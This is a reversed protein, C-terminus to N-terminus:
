RLVDAMHSAREDDPNLELARKYYDKAEDLQGRMLAVDGLGILAKASSPYTQTYQEFTWQAYDFEHESLIRYGLETYYHEPVAVDMGVRESLEDYHREVISIDNDTLLIVPVQWGEYVWELADYLSRYAISVHDEADYSAYHWRLGEPSQQELVEAFASVGALTNGGENGVSLHFAKPVPSGKTYSEVARKVQQQNNRGLSPSIAIFADFADPKDLMAYVAFLGGLSHGALVRHPKTRYKTDLEPVLEEAIFRLFTQAGGGDAAEGPGSPALDAFRAFRGNRLTNTVGVVIMPPMRQSAALHETIAVANRFSWEGDLVILVPYSAEEGNYGDPLHVFVDREEQLLSSKVRVLEGNSLMNSQARLLIPSILIFFVCLLFRM